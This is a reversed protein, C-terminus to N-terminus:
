PGPTLRFGGGTGDENVLTCRFRAPHIMGYGRLEIEVNYRKDPLLWAPNRWGPQHSPSYSEDNFHHCVASRDQKIALPVTHIDESRDRDAPFLKALRRNALMTVLDPAGTQYNIPEPNDDWRGLARFKIEGTDPDAYSVRLSCGEPATRLVLPRLFPTVDWNAVAIKVVAFNDAIRVTSETPIWIEPDPVALWRLVGQLFGFVGFSLATLSLIDASKPAPRHFASLWVVYGATICFVATAPRVWMWDELLYHGLRSKISTVAKSIPKRIM